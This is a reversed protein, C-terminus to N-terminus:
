KVNKELVIIRSYPATENVVSRKSNVDVPITLAADSKDFLECGGSNTGILLLM